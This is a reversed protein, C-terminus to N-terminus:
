RWEPEATMCTDGSQAPASEQAPAEEPAADYGSSGYDDEAYYQPEEYSDEQAQSQAQEEVQKTQEEAKKKAQENAQKQAQAAKKTSDEKGNATVYTVYALGNDEVLKASKLNALPVKVFEVTTEKGDKGRKTVQVDYTATADDKTKELFLRAEEKAALSAKAPILNKGFSKKGSVRLKLSTLEGDLGNVLAVETADASETGLVQRDDKNEEAKKETEEAETKAEQKPEEGTAKDQSTESTAGSDQAPQVTQAGGCGWLTVGLAAACVGLVCRSLVTCLRM